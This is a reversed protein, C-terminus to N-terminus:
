KKTYYFFLLNLCFDKMREKINKPSYCSLLKYEQYKNLLSLHVNRFRLINYKFLDDQFRLVESQIIEHKFDESYIRFLNSIISITCNIDSLVDINKYKAGCFDPMKYYYDNASILTVQSIHACYSIIFDFDERVVYDTCFKINFKEIVSKKFCRCWLYGVNHLEFLYNLALRIDIKENKLQISQWAETNSVNYKFGQVVMDAPLAKCFSELWQHGVYDDADCFCIYEGRSHKLGINRASSVGGNKKHFVRVRLDKCSYEDCIKGSDDTSGDDILLVEFNTFSQALISDVCHVIYKEVNYVPVIISIKPIYEEM